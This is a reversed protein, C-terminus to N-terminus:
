AKPAPHGRSHVANENSRVYTKGSPYLPLERGEEEKNLQGAAKELPTRPNTGIKKWNEENVFANEHTTSPQLVKNPKSLRLLELAVGPTDYSTNRKTFM